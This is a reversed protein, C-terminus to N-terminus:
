NSFFPPSFFLSMSHHNNFAGDDEDEDTSSEQSITKLYPDAGLVHLMQVVQLDGRFQVVAIHMASDGNVESSRSMSVGHTGLILVIDPFRYYLLTVCVCARACVYM